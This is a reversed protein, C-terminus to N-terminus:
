DHSSELKLTFCIRNKKGANKKIFCLNWSWMLYILVENNFM